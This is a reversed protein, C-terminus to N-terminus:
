LSPRRRFGLLLLGASILVITGPEPVATVYGIDAFSAITAYSIYNNPGAVITGTMVETGFVSKRWHSNVTGPGGLLEVPVSTAAPQSFESRYATLANPGTYNGTGNVYVNNATWLTGFGMIHGIEHIIVDYLLGSGEMGPLDATDFTIAGSNSLTFGGQIETTPPGTQALIGSPGDIAAGSANINLSPINITGQHGPILSMWTNAATTFLAQQSGSLGAGFVINTTLPAAPAALSALLFTAASMWTQRNGAIENM